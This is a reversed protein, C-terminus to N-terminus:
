MAKGGPQIYRYIYFKKDGGCGRKQRTAISFLLIKIAGVNVTKRTIGHKRCHLSASGDWLSPSQVVM